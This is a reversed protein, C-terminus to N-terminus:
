RPTPSARRPWSRACCARSAGSRRGRRPVLRAAARHQARAAERRDQHPRDAQQGPLRRDQGARAGGHPLDRDHRRRREPLHLRHREISLDELFNTAWLAKFDALMTQEAAEDYPVFIGQSPQSPRLKIYYMYTESEVTSADGQRRSAPSSFGSSRRRAPRRCRRRRRWRRQRVAHDHHRDLARSRRPRRPAAAASAALQRPRAAPAAPWAAPSRSAPWRWWRLGGSTLRGMVSWAIERVPVRMRAVGGDHRPSQGATAIGNLKCSKPQGNGPARM